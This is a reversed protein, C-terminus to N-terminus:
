ENVEKQQHCAMCLGYFEVRHAHIEYGSAEEARDPLGTLGALEIDTIKGCRTCIAHPHFQPQVGDYHSRGDGVEMEM